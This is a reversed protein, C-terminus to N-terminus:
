KVGKIKGVPALLGAPDPRHNNQICMSNVKFGLCLVAGNGLFSPIGTLKDTCCFCKDCRADTNQLDAM